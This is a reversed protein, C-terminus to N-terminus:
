RRLAIAVVALAVVGLSMVAGIYAIPISAQMVDYHFASWELRHGIVIVWCAAFFSILFIAVGQM